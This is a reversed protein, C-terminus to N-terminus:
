ASVELPTSPLYGLRLSINRALEWVGRHDTTALPAEAAGHAFAGVRGVEQATYDRIPACTCVLRQAGEPLEGAPGLRIIAAAPTRVQATESLKLCSLRRTAQAAQATFYLACHGPMERGYLTRMAVEDAAVTWLYTVEGTSPIALFMRHSTRLVYDRVLPYAHLRLESGGLARFMMDLMKLSLSYRSTEDDQRVYGRRKLVGLVRHASSVPLRLQRAVDSVSLGRPTGSLVECVDLAKDTSTSSVLRAVTVPIEM